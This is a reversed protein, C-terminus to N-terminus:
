ASLSASVKERASDYVVRKIELEKPGFNVLLGVKYKSGKLYKWFQDYDEATLLEKSKIEVLVADDVIVDPM